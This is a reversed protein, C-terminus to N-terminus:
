FHRKKIIVKSVFIKLFINKEMLKFDDPETIISDICDWDIMNM